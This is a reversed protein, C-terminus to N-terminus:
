RRTLPVALDRTIYIEVFGPLLGADAMAQFPAHFRPDERETLLVIRWVNVPAGESGEAAHEVHFLPQHDDATLMTGDSDTFNRRGMFFIRRAAHDLFVEELVLGRSPTIWGAQNSRRYFHDSGDALDGRGWSAGESVVYPIYNLPAWAKKVEMDWLQTLSMRFPADLVYKAAITANVDVAPLEFRTNAPNNWAAAFEAKAASFSAESM